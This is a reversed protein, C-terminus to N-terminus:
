FWFCIARVTCFKLYTDLGSQNYVKKKFLEPKKRYWEKLTQLPTSHGLNRQIIHQNYLTRYHELTTTMEQANAFYTTNVLQAIRGNFREVMGNTQPHKPPILRHEINLEACAQDFAHNGTPEREGNATFRDTFEKGNDTLIIKINVSCHEHLRRIFAATTKASKDHIVELYVWRTARDIAVLLYRKQPDNPLNPLYKIDVHLYGPEYDKFSKPKDTESEGSQEAYLDQLRNVGHRNLLRILSSRVMDPKIFERTVVLLDDVTLLLSRRILVVIEEQLPTLATHIQRPRHSRDEVSERKRWKLITSRSVNFHKAAEELTLRGKSARIEERIKPTTRAQSHINM